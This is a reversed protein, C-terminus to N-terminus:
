PLYSKRAQACGYVGFIGALTVGCAMESNGHSILMVVELLCLAATAMMRAGWMYAERKNNLM